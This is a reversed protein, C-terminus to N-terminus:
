ESKGVYVQGYHLCHVREGGVGVDAAIFAEGDENGVVIGENWTCNGNSYPISKQEISGPQRHSM